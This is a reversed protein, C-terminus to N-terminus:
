FKVNLNKNKNVNYYIVNKALLIAARPSLVRSVQRRGFLFLNYYILEIPPKSRLSKRVLSELSLPSLLFPKIFFWRNKVRILEYKKIPRWQTCLTYVFSSFILLNIWDFLYRLYNKMINTKSAFANSQTVPM